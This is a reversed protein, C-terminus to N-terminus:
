AKCHRDGSRSTILGMKSEDEGKEDKCSDEYSLENRKGRGGQSHKRGSWTDRRLIYNMHQSPWDGLDWAGPVRFPCTDNECVVPKFPLSGVIHVRKMSLISRSDTQAGFLDAYGVNIVDLCYIM